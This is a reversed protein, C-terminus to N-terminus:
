AVVKLIGFLTVLLCALLALLSLCRRFGTERIFSVVGLVLGAGGGGFQLTAVIEPKIGLAPSQDIGLGSLAAAAAILGLIPLTNGTANPLRVGLEALAEDRSEVIPWVKNLGAIELVERILPNKNVVAIRGDRQKISKWLRVVLAVVSSGIYKLECLDVVLAPSKQENLRKLMEAGLDEVDSWQASSLGQELTIVVHRKAFEIRYAPENTAM